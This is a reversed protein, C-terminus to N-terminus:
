SKRWLFYKNIDYFPITTKLAWGLKEYMAINNENATDILIGKAKPHSECHKILDNLLAKGLGRGRYQKRVALENGYYHEVEPKYGNLTAYEGILNISKDAAKERMNELSANMTESWAFSEPTTYIMCGALIGDAFAGRITLNLKPVMDYVVFEYMIKTLRRRQEKAPFAFMFLPDDSFAGTFIAVADKYLEKPIDNIQIEM